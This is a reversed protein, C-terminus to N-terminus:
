QTIRKALEDAVEDILYKTGIRELNRLYKDVSNPSAYGLAEAIQLRGIFDAKAKKKLIEKIDQKTM